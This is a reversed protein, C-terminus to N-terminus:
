SPLIRSLNCAWSLVVVWQQWGWGWSGSVRWGFVGLLFGYINIESTRKVFSCIKVFWFHKGGMLLRSIWDICWALKSLKCVRYGIWLYLDNLEKLKKERKNKKWKYNNWINWSVKHLPHPELWHHCHHQHNRICETFNCNFMDLSTLKSFNASIEPILGSELGSDNIPCFFAHKKGVWFFIWLLRMVFVQTEGLIRNKLAGANLLFPFVYLFWVVWIIVPLFFVFCFWFAFFFYDM